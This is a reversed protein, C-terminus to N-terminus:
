KLNNNNKKLEVMLAESFKISWRAVELPNGQIEDGLQDGAGASRTLLGQMALGAFHERRTLETKFKDTNPSYFIDPIKSKFKTDKYLNYLIASFLLFVGLVFLVITINQEM